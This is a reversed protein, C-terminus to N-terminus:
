NKKKERNKNMELLIRRINEAHDYIYEGYAKLQKVAKETADTM